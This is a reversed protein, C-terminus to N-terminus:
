FAVRQRFQFAFADDQLREENLAEGFVRVSGRQPFYLGDLIRLLTSKGSGNAGLIAVRQGHPITFSVENLAVVEQNYRYTIKDIEYAPEAAPPQSINNM